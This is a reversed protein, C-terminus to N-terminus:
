PCDDQPMEETSIPETHLKPWASMVAQVLTALPIAFFVGWFGWLGGFMLVAVIIAVPHLNVVESFLLPVLVNGDLAQIILYAALLIAFDSTFGWQIYAVLAVPFTVVAAGIFPILVSLGVLVALLLAYNLGLVAFTVFCAWWLILVEWFKGRVYNGIQNDLERWITHTLHVDRPLLERAWQMIRDKDKMFFFVLMPLLVAYVTLTIFGAVSSMSISVVQRGLITIEARLVDIIERVQEATFVAPYREPLQLLLGQFLGIMAPVQGILDTAQRSILPLLGVIVFIVFILFASFVIFVAPLRPFRMLQLRQVVGELLYAIVVAALVPTLMEGFNIVIAFFVILLLALTFVQPNSFHEQFWVKIANLAM